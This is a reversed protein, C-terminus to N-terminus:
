IAGHLRNGGCPPVTKLTFPGTVRELVVLEDGFRWPLTAIFRWILLVDTVSEEIRLRASLRTPWQKGNNVLFTRSRHLCDDPRHCKGSLVYRRGRM